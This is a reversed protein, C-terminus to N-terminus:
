ECVEYTATPGIQWNISKFVQNMSEVCITTIQNSYCILIQLTANKSLNLKTLKNQSCDLRQLMVNKSIDLEKLQNISCDTNELITNKSIDLSILRNDHCYLEQLAINTTLDLTTLLNRRCNLSLLATSKSVNLATLQNVECNVNQLAINKSIDLNILNNYGCVLYTLNVNKSVDLVTLQNSDCFLGTLAINKSIDLSSLQNSSCVLITLNINKSIDLNVLSNSGCELYQLDTFVEIGTLNKISLFSVNIVKVGKADDINMRSNVLGDKDIKNTVLYKEFNADPINVFTIEKTTATFNAESILGKADKAIVKGAQSYNFDLNAITFTTDSVNKVLTDKLVVAYTVADGDPDKAKTWNLTITKGDTKLTPTVTFTSPPRNPIVEEKTKCAYLLTVGAFLLIKKMTKTRKVM